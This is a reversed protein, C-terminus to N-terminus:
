REVVQWDVKGFVSRLRKELTRHKAKFTVARLSTAGKFEKALTKDISYGLLEKQKNFAAYVFVNPRRALEELITLIEDPYCVARSASSATYFITNIGGKGVTFTYDGVKAMLQWQFLQCQATTLDDDAKLLARVKLLINKYPNM